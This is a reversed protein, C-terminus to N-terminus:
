TVVSRVIMYIFICVSNLEYLDIFHRVCIHIYLGDHGRSSQQSPVHYHDNNKTTTTHLKPINQTNVHPGTDTFGMVTVRLGLGLM